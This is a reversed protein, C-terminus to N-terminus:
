NFDIWSNRVMDMEEEMESSYILTTVLKKWM